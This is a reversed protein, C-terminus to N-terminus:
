SYSQVNYEKIVMAIVLSAVLCINMLLTGPLDNSGAIGHAFYFLLANSIVLEVAVALGLFSIGEIEIYRTIVTFLLSQVLTAIISLGIIYLVSVSSDAEAADAMIGMGFFLLVIFFLHAISFFVLQKVLREM